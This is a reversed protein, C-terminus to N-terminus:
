FYLKAIIRSTRPYIDEYNLPYFLGRRLTLHQNSELQPYWKLCKEIEQRTQTSISVFNAKGSWDNIDWIDSQDKKIAQVWPHFNIKLRGNTLTYDNGFCLLVKKKTDLDGTLFIDRVESLFNMYERTIDFSKELENWFNSLKNEIVQIEEDIKEKKNIYLSELIVGKICLNLAREQDAHLKKLTTQLNKKILKNTEIEKQTDKDLNKFAWDLYEQPISISDIIELINNELKKLSTYKQTCKIDKSSKTCHYYVYHIWKKIFETATISAGCEWCKICWTYSFHHTRSSVTKWKRWLLKQVRDFEVYTVMPRHTWKIVEWNWNFYWMYFPNTLLNYMSSVGIPNWWSKKNSRRRFGFDDRVIQTLKPVTYDWTLMLDWIKRIIQFRWEDIEVTKEWKNNVYWEPVRACFVWRKIKSDMWRKVNKKLDIIFQSSIGTEVSMLLWADEPNYERDNTIIKKLVWTQLMYQISWSDIPNRTLRDIKWSIIGHVKWKELEKMMKNFEVRWPAKASQSEVFFKVIKIWLFEAKKLIFAKQDELSNVQKDEVDTSKRIYWFFIDQKM